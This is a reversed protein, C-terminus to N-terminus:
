AKNREPQSETLARVVRGAREIEHNAEDRMLADLRKQGARAEDRWDRAFRGSEVDDLVKELARRVDDTVIRSGSTVSKPRLAPM